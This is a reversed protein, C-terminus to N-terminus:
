KTGVGAWKRVLVLCRIVLAAPICEQGKYGVTMDSTIGQESRICPIEKERTTVFRM